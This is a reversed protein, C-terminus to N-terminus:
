QLRAISTPPCSSMWIRIWVFICKRDERPLDYLRFVTVIIFCFIVRSFVCWFCIAQRRCQSIPFKKSKKGQLFDIFFKINSLSPNWNISTSNNIKMSFNSFEHGRDAKGIEIAFRILKFCYLYNSILKSVLKYTLMLDFPDIDDWKILFVMKYLNYQHFRWSIWLCIEHAVKVLNDWNQVDM